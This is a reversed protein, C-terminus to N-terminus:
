FCYAGRALPGGFSDGEMSFFGLSEKKISICQSEYRCRDSASHCFGHIEMKKKHDKFTTGVRILVEFFTESDFTM